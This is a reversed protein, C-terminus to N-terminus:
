RFRGTWGCVSQVGGSHLQSVMKIAHRRTLKELGSGVSMSANQALMSVEVEVVSGM